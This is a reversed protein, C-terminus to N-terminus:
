NSKTSPPNLMPAIRAIGFFFQGIPEASSVALSAARQHPLRLRAPSKERSDDSFGREGSMGSQYVGRRANADLLM